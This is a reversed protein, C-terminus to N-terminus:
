SHDRDQTAPFPLAAAKKVQRERAIKEVQTTFLAPAQAAAIAKSEFPLFEEPTALDIWEAEEPVGPMPLQGRLIVESLPSPTKAFSAPGRGGEQTCPRDATGRSDDEAPIGRDM